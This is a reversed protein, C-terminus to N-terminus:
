GIIKNQRERIGNLEKHSIPPFCSHTSETKLKSEKEGGKDM